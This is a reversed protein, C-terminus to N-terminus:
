DIFLARTLQLSARLVCRGSTASSCIRGGWRKQSWCSQAIQLGDPTPYIHFKITNSAHPAGKNLCFSSNVGKTRVIVINRKVPEEGCNPLQFMKRNKDFPLALLGDLCIERYRRDFARVLRQLETMCAQPINFPKMAPRLKEDTSIYVQEADRARKKGREEGADPGGDSVTNGIRLFQYQISPPLEFGEEPNMRGLTSRVSTLYMLSLDYTAMQPGESGDGDGGGIPVQYQYQAVAERMKVITGDFKRVRVLDYISSSDQFICGNSAAHAYLCPSKDIVNDLAHAISHPRTRPFPAHLVDYCSTCRKSKLCGVIRLARKNQYVCPDLVDYWSNEGEFTNREGFHRVLNIEISRRIYLARERNVVLNPWVIYIGRKYVKKNEQVTEELYGRARMVSFILLHTPDGQACISPFCMAVGEAIRACLERTYNQWEQGTHTKLYRADLDLFFKFYPWTLLEAPCANPENSDVRREEDPHTAKDVVRSKWFLWFIENYMPERGYAQLCHQRFPHFERLLPIRAKDDNEFVHAPIPEENLIYRGGAMDYFTVPPDTLMVEQEVSPHAAVLAQDASPNRRKGSQVRAFSWSQLIERITRPRM